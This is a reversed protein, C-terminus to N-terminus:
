KWQYRLGGLAAFRLTNYGSVETYDADLLNNIKFYAQLVPTIDYAAALNVLTYPELSVQRSAYTVPDFALDWRAGVRQVSLQVHAARWQYGADLSIKYDARRVLPIPGLTDAQTMDNATLKTYGLRLTLQSVPEAAVFAEWGQTEVKGLNVYQSQYSAPDTYFSM